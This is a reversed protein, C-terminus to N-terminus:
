DIADNLSLSHPRVKHFSLRHEPERRFPPDRLEIAGWAAINPWTYYRPQRIPRLPVRYEAGSWQLHPNHRSSRPRRRRPPLFQHREGATATTLKPGEVPHNLTHILLVVWRTRMTPISSIISSSGRCVTCSTLRLTQSSHRLLPLHPKRLFRSVGALSIMTPISRHHAQPWRM